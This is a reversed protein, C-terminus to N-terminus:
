SQTARFVGVKQRGSYTVGGDIVSNQECSCLFVSLWKSDPFFVAWKSQHFVIKRFYWTGYKEPLSSSTVRSLVTHAHTHGHIFHSGSSLWYPFHVLVCSLYLMIAAAVSTLNRHEARQSPTDWLNLKSYLCPRLVQTLTLTLQEIPFEAPLHTLTTSDFSIDWKTSTM